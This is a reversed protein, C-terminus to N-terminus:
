QTVERWNRALLIVERGVVKGDEIIEKGPKIVKDYYNSEVRVRLGFDGQFIRKKAIKGAYDHDIVIEKDPLRERFISLMKEKGAIPINLSNVLEEYNISVHYLAAERQLEFDKLQVAGYTDRIMNGAQVLASWLRETKVKADFSEEADLLKDKFYQAVGPRLPDLLVMDYEPNRNPKVKQIFACKQLERETLASPLAKYDNVKKGNVKLDSHEFALSPDIKLLSLFHEHPFNEAEFLAVVLDAAKTRGDVMIQYLFKAIATSGEVFDRSGDLLDSCIGSPALPNINRFKAVRSNPNALSKSIHNTFFKLLEQRGHLDLEAESPVFGRPNVNNPRPPDIVHIILKSIKIGFADKLYPRIQAM